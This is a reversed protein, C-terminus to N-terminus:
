TATAPKAKRRKFRKAKIHQCAPCWPKYTRTDAHYDRHERPEDGM